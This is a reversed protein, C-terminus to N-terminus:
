FAAYLKHKEAYAQLVASLGLTQETECFRQSLRDLLVEVGDPLEAHQGYMREWRAGEDKPVAEDGFVAVKAERLVDGLEVLGVEELGALTEEYYGGSSSDFYTGIGGRWVEGSVVSIMYYRRDAISLGEVGSETKHVQHVLWRWYRGEPSDEFREQAERMERNRVRAQEMSQRTGNRCPMCLGDNRAATALLIM